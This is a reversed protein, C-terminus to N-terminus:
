NASFLYQPWTTPCGQRFDRWRRSTGGAPELSTGPVGADDEVYDSFPTGFAIEGRSIAGLLTGLQGTITDRFRPARDFAVEYIVTRYAGLDFPIDNTSQALLVVRKRLGHAIGLEYFVNANRGM